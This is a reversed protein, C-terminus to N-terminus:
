LCYKKYLCDQFHQQKFGCEKLIESLPGTTPRIFNVVNIQSNIQSEWASVNTLSTVYRKKECEKKYKACENKIDYGTLQM